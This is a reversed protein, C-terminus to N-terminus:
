GLLIKHLACTIFSNMICDEGVVDERMPEIIRRLVRNNFVRLIHDERLAVVM